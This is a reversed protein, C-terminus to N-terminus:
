AGEIKEEPVSDIILQEMQRLTLPPAISYSQTQTTGDTTDTTDGTTDAVGNGLGSLYARVAAMIRDFLLPYLRDILINLDSDSCDILGCGQPGGLSLSGGQQGAAARTSSSDSQSAAGGPAVQLVQYKNGAILAINPPPQSDTRTAYDVATGIAQDAATGAPNIISTLNNTIQKHLDTIKNEVNNITENLNYVVIGHLDDACREAEAVCQTTVATGGCPWGLDFITSCDAPSM